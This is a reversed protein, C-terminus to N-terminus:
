RAYQGQSRGRAKAIAAEAIARMIQYGEGVPHVGDGSTGAKMGGDAGALASYYDAYVLGRERAYSKLWTNLERIHPAPDIDRHWPFARAPPISALVVRVRNALALDVMARVNNKYQEPSTPGTNGAIDNTGALIHVVRPRLAIVDQYFRLLIQPSTQGSIGRNVFAGSFLSPDYRIWLETISDGIFVVEARKSRIDAADERQYRCLWAWDYKRQYDLLEARVRPDLVQGPEGTGPCPQAMMGEGPPAIPAPVVILSGPTGRVSQAGASSGFMMAIVTVFHFAAHPHFVRMSLLAGITM